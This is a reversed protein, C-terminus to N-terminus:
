FSYKQLYHPSLNFAVYLQIEDPDVSNTFTFLVKLCFFVYKKLDYGSVGLSDWNLTDFWFSFDM